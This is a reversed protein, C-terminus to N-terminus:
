GLDLVPNRLKKVLETNNNNKIMRTFSKKSSAKRKDIPLNNWLTCGIYQIAKLGYTSTRVMPLDLNENRNAATNHINTPYHYYLYFQQPNLKNLSDYLFNVM